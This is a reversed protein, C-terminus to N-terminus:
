KLLSGLNECNKVACANFDNNFYIYLDQARLERTGGAWKKLEEQSYDYNYWSERGHFRVYAVDSTLRLDSPLNPASVICYIIKNKKLFDYVEQCYWSPHRFELVNRFNEDLQNVIGDLLEMNRDLTPHIQFLICGLKEDLLSALSYFGDLLEQTGKFKKEHTILRNAKLTFKFGDPARKYWSKVVTEKPLNYFTSNVEVTNFRQGYFELWKIKYLDEPYFKGIWHNYYWGSCGLYNM